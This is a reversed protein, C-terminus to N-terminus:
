DKRGEKERGDPCSDFFPTARTELGQLPSRPRDRGKGCCELSEAIPSIGVSWSPEVTEM